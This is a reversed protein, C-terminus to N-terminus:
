NVEGLRQVIVFTSPTKLVRLFVRETETDSDSANLPLNVVGAFDCNWVGQGKVDKRLVENGFLSVVTQKFMVRIRTDDLVKREANLEIKLAGNLLEVRNIFKEADLFSQTVKGVFPGIAGSSGGPSASYILDHDGSLEYKAPSSDSFASLMNAIDDISAREEESLKSGVQGLKKCKAILQNALNDRSSDGNGTSIINRVNFKRLVGDINTPSEVAHLMGFRNLGRSESPRLFGLAFPTLVAFVAVVLVALTSRVMASLHPSLPPLFSSPPLLFSSIILM